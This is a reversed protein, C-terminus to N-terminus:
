GTRSKLCAKCFKIGSYKTEFERGCDHCDVKLLRRPPRPPFRTTDGLVDSVPTAAAVAPDVEKPVRHTVRQVGQVSSVVTEGEDAFTPTVARARKKKKKKKVPRNFYVNPSACESCGVYFMGQGEILSLSDEDKGIYEPPIFYGIKTKADMNGCDACMYISKAM